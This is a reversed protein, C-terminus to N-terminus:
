FPNRLKLHVGEAAFSFLKNNLKPRSKSFFFLASHIRKEFNQFKQHAFISVIFVISLQCKTTDQAIPVDKLSYLSLKSERKFAM